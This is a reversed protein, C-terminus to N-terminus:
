TNSKPNSLGAQKMGWPAWTAGMLAIFALLVVVVLAINQYVNFDGAFFSLWIIVSIIAGFFTIISVGARWGMGESRLPVPSAEQSM